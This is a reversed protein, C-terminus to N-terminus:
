ETAAHPEEEMPLFVTLQDSADQTNGFSTQHIGDKPLSKKERTETIQEEKHHLFELYFYGYILLLM